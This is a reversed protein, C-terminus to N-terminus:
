DEREPFYRDRWVEMLVVNGLITADTAAASPSGERLLEQRAELFATMAEFATIAPQNSSQRERM